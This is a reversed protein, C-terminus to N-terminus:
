QLGKFGEGQDDHCLFELKNNTLNYSNLTVFDQTLLLTSDQRYSFNYFEQNNAADKLPLGPNGSQIGYDIIKGTETEIIAGDRAGTGRGWMVFTYRGAFNPGLKAGEIIKTRFEKAAPYSEFDVPAPVGTYIESVPFDEFRKNCHEVTTKGLEKEVFWDPPTQPLNLLIDPTTRKELVDFWYEFTSVYWLGEYNSVGRGFPLWFSGTVKSLEYKGEPTLPTNPISIVTKYIAYNSPIWPSWALLLILSILLGTIIQKKSM